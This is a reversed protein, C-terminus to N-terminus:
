RPTNTSAGGRLLGGYFTARGKATANAETSTHVPVIKHEIQKEEQLKGGNVTLTTDAEM